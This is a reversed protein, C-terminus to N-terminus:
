WAASAPVKFKALRMLCHSLAAEATLDTGPQLVLLAKGIEGWRADPVGIVAVQAIGPLEALVAEIEAPYVNEGGSIYMDKRRDVIFTFGDADRKAIDGTKFWGDCFASATLKPQNWYGPTISPGKLWLEGTEDELADEGRQDIIRSQVALFPLGCSGANTVLLDPDSVPMGFNSGTESMGFGDSM